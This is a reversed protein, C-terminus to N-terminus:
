RRGLRRLRRRVRRWQEHRIHRRVDPDARPHRRVSAAAWGIAYNAGGIVRPPDQMKRVAQLLTIGADQGYAYACTGIRRQGRLRGDESGRPRLHIPDGGPLAFSQTRWGAMRARTEDVTDWGLMAPVPSIAEWCARRHFKTAGHVHDDGIRLRRRSGDPQIESLFLGAIGLGDDEAFRELLFAFAHPPLRLDGDLKAVVDFSPDLQEVGWTFAVYEHAQALRDRSRARPPRRVARAYPHEAAFAEALAFSGDGSGDDVLLLEDPPREQAAISDLTEALYREEDLFPLVIAARVGAPYLGSRCSGAGGCGGPRRDYHARSPRGSGALPGEVARGATSEVLV